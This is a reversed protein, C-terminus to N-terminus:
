CHLHPIKLHQNSLMIQGTVSTNGPWRTNNGPRANVGNGMKVSPGNCVSPNRQLQAYTQWRQQQHNGELVQQRGEHSGEERHLLAAANALMGM